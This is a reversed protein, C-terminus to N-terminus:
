NSPKAVCGGSGSRPKGQRCSGTRHETSQLNDVRGVSTGGWRWLVREEPSVLVDAPLFGAESSFKLSHVPCQFSSSPDLGLEATVRIIVFVDKGRKVGKDLCKWLPQLIWLSPSRKTHPIQCTHHAVHLPHWVFAWTRSWTLLYFGGIRM